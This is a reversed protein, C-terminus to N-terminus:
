KEADRGALIEAVRALVAERVPETVYNAFDGNLTAIERVLSSSFYMRDARPILFVTEIEPVLERNALGMQFEPEFDGVARLGRVIVSAGQAQCFAVVLGTFGEVRVRPMHGVSQEALAVREALDFYGRKTPHQGVAVVVEDFLRVARELIDIHGLTIPDFSGPYVAIRRTSTPPTEGVGRLISRAM